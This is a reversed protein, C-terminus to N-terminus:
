QPSPGPAVCGASGAGPSRAAKAFLIYDGEYSKERRVECWAPSQKLLDTIPLYDKVLAHDVRYKDMLAFANQGAMISRYEAMVGVQDFSDFRSDIFSPKSEWAMMGGVYDWDFTRWGPQIAKITEVPFQLALKHRLKAESPFTIM